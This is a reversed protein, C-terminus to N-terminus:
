MAWHLRHIDFLTTQVIKEHSLEPEAPFRYAMKNASRVFDADKVAFSPSRRSIKITMAAIRRTGNRMISNM